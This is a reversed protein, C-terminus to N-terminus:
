YRDGMAGFVLAGVLLGAIYISQAAENLISEDCVLNFQAFPLHLFVIVNM